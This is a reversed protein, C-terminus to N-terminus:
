NATVAPQGSQVLKDGTAARLGATRIQEVQAPTAVPLIEGSAILGLRRAEIAEARVQARSLGSDALTEQVPVIEGRAVLGAQNAQVAQAQVEARSLTSQFNFVENGEIPGEAFAAGAGLALAISLALNQATKM